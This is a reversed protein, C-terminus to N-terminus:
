HDHAEKAEEYTEFRIGEPHEPPAYISYLKLPEDGINIVNHWYGAPVLIAWDDEVEKDFFLLDETFGMVVRAKGEEIRLFQDIDSHNELGIEGGVPIAMLTMQLNIGTWRAIQFDENEVTIKEIDVVWPRGGMDPLEAEEAFLTFIGVIIVMVIATLTTKTKMKDGKNIDM